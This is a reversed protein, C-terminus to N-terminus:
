PGSPRLTAFLEVSALVRLIPQGRNTSDLAHLREARRLPMLAALHREGAEQDLVERLMDGTPCGIIQDESALAGPHHPRLRELACLRGPCGGREADWTEMVLQAM